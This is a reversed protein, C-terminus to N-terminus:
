ITEVGSLNVLFLGTCDCVIRGIQLAASMGIGHVDKEGPKVLDGVWDKPNCVGFFGGEVGGFDKLLCWSAGSHVVACDISRLQSVSTM